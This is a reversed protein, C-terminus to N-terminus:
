FQLPHHNFIWHSLKEQHLSPYEEKLEEVDKQYYEEQYDGQHFYDDAQQKFYDEAQHKFYDEGQQHFYDEGQQHFYDEEKHIYYEETFISSRTSDGTPTNSSTTLGDEEHYYHDNHNCLISMNLEEENYVLVEEENYIVEEENYTAEKEENYVDEYVEEEEEEYPNLYNDDLLIRDYEMDAYDNWHSFLPLGFDDTLPDEDYKRHQSRICGEQHAEHIQFKEYDMFTDFFREALYGNKKLDKLTFQGPIHPQIIDNMQRIIDEFQVYGDLSDNEYFHQKIDQEAWYSQLEYSSLIGDGDTDLCRFWYEIAVPSSKDTESLIFWIFDFYTLCVPDADDDTTLTDMFNILHGRKTISEIVSQTLSGMNYNLLDSQTLLLDHDTDLSWLKCYIVYFQKYSFLTHVTYLDIAPKIENLLQTFKSKNFQRQCLKGSPCQAEYFIRCIVTEIYREQFPINDELFQLSPHNMVIDELVPLFDDPTLYSCHQKKLIKFILSEITWQDSTLLHWGDKFQNFSLRELQGNLLYLVRFFAVNMYTPLLCAETIVTFETESLYPNFYVSLAEIDEESLLPVRKLTPFLIM